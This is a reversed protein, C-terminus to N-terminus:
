LKNLISAQDFFGRERALLVIVNTAKKHDIVPAEVCDIFDNLNIVGCGTWPHILAKM